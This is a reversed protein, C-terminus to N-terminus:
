LVSFSFGRMQLFSQLDEPMTSFFEMYTEATPHYFSLKHAHLAPRTLNTEERVFEDGMEGYLVDGVLPFGMWSMHARIQHTRGTEIQIEALSVSRAMSVVSKENGSSGNEPKKTLDTGFSGSSGNELKKELHLRVNESNENLKAAAEGCFNQEQKWLIRYHTKAYSGGVEKERYVRQKMPVTEDSGLPMEIEGELAEPCGRLIAYYTKKMRGDLRQREM